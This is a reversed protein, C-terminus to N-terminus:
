TKLIQAIQELHNTQNQKKKMQVLPLQLKTTSPVFNDKFAHKKCSLEDKM